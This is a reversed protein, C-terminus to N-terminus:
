CPPHSISAAPHDMDQTLHRGTLVVIILHKEMDRILQIQKIVVFNYLRVVDEFISEVNGKSYVM